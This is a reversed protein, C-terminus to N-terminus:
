IRPHPAHNQRRTFPLAQVLHQDDGRRQAHLIHAVAGHGRLGLGVLRVGFKLVVFAFEAPIQTQPIPQLSGFATIAFAVFEGVTLMFIQQALVEDIDSSPAFPAIHVALQQRHHFLLAPDTILLGGTVLLQM